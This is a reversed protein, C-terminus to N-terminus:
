QQKLDPVSIPPRPEQTIGQAFANATEPSVGADILGARITAANLGSMPQHPYIGPTTPWKPSWQPQQPPNYAASLSQPGNDAEPRQNASNPQDHVPARGSAPRGDFTKTATLPAR